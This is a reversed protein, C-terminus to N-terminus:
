FDALWCKNCLCVVRARIVLPAVPQSYRVPQVSTTPKIGTESESKRKLKGKAWEWAVLM